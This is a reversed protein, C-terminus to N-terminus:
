RDDGSCLGNSGMGFREVVGFVDGLSYVGSTFREDPCRLDCGCSRRTASRREHRCIGTSSTTRRASMASRPASRSATNTRPGATDGDACHTATWMKERHSGPVAAHIVPAGARPYDRGRTQRCGSPIRRLAGPSRGILRARYHEAGLGLPYGCHAPLRHERSCASESTGTSPPALVDLRDVRSLGRRTRWSSRTIGTISRTARALLRWLPPGHSRRRHPLEDGDLLRCHDGVVLGVDEDVGDAGAMLDGSFRSYRIRSRWWTGRRCGLAGFNGLRSRRRM